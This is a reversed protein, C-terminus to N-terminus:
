KSISSSSSCYFSGVRVEVLNTSKFMLPLSRLGKLRRLVFFIGYHLVLAHVSGVTAGSAAVRGAGAEGGRRGEEVEKKKRGIGVARASRGRAEQVAVPSGRCRRSTAM